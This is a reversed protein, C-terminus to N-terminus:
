IEEKKDKDTVRQEFCSIYFYGFHLSILQEYMKKYQRLREVDQSIKRDTVSDRPERSPPIVNFMRHCIMCLVPCNDITLLLM